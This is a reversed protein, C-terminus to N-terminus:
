ISSSFSSIDIDRINLLKGYMGIGKPASYKAYVTVLKLNLYEKTDFYDENPIEILISEEVRFEDLSSKSHFLRVHKQEKYESFKIWGRISIKKNNLEKSNAALSFFNVDLEEIVVNAFIELSFFLYLAVVLFKV